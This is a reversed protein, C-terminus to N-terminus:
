IVKQFAPASMIRLLDYIKELSSEIVPALDPIRAVLWECVEIKM